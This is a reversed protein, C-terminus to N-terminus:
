LPEDHALWKARVPYKCRRLWLDMHPRLPAEPAHQEVAIAGELDHEQWVSIRADEAGEHQDYVRMRLHWQLPQDLNAAFERTEKVKYGAVRAHHWIDRLRGDANDEPPVRTAGPPANDRTESRLPWAVNEFRMTEPNWQVSEGTPFYGLARRAFTPLAGRIGERADHALQKLCVALTRRM